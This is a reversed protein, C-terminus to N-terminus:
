LLCITIFTYATVKFLVQAGCLANQANQLFFRLVGLAPSLKKGSQLLLGRGAECRAQASGGHLTNM